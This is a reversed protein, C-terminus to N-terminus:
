IPRIFVKVGIKNARKELDKELGRPNRLIQESDYVFCYLQKCNPHEEYKAIDIILQDGIEKDKLGDRTMKVEIAIEEEKLLFDMRNCGGAYSPTWEEPRVDDFHEKLLAHLLDQVDYEDKISLTPRNSYRRLLQRAIIHFRNFITALTGEYDVKIEKPQVDRFAKLISLCARCYSAHNNAAVCGEFTKLQPNQPYYTQLFMLAKRKWPDYSENQVFTMGTFSEVSKALIAEGELILEDLTM